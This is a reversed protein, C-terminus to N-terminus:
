YSDRLIITNYFNETKAFEGEGSTLQLEIKIADAKQGDIHRFVLNSIYTSSATLQGSYNGNEKLKLIGDQVFFEITKSNGNIDTTNIFLKGPNVGFLSQIINISTANQMEKVMRDMAFLSNIQVQKTTVATRHSRTLTHLISVITIIFITLVSVYILMEILSFGQQQAHKKM